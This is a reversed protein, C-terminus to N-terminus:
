EPKQFIEIKGIVKFLGEMDSRKVVIESRDGSTAQLAVTEDEKFTVQRLQGQRQGKEAIVAFALDGNAVRGSRSLVAIDGEKFSAGNAGALDNGVVTIAFAQAPNLGPLQIQERATAEPMGNAGMRSPYGQSATNLLPIGTGGAEGKQRGAGAAGAGREKGVMRGFEPQLSKPVKDLYAMKLFEIEDQGFIRALKRVFKETPPNVKENEIGSLYGKSSGIKSALTELTMGKQKRLERLRKGFEM